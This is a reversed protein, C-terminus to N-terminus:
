SAATPAPAGQREAAVMARVAHWGALFNDRFHQVPGFGEFEELSLGEPDLARRMDPFTEVLAREAAPDVPDEITAVAPPPDALLAAATSWNITAAMSGGVLGSFDLEIRAGGFLLLVPYGRERVVRYCARSLLVGALELTAVPADLGDAAAVKKLHDGLIGTIHSM